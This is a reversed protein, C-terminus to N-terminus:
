FCLKSKELKDSLDYKKLLNFINEYKWEEMKPHTYIKFNTEFFKEVDIEIKKIGGNNDNHTTLVFRFENEFSYSNDKKFVPYDIKIKSNMFEFPWINDYIVRGSLFWDITDSKNISDKLVNSLELIETSIAISESNSYLNWMAFSEKPNIFWCNVFLNNQCKIQEPLIYKEIYEKTSKYNRQVDPNDEFLKISNLKNINGLIEETLGELNDDLNDLRSFFLSKKTVFYLFKHLDLFKWVVENGNFNCLTEEKVM